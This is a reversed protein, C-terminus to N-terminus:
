FPDVCSAVCNEYIDYTLTKKEKSKQRFQHAKMAAPNTLNSFCSM